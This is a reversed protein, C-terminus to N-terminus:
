MPIKNREVTSLKSDTIQGEYTILQATERSMLFLGREEGEGREGLRTVTHM